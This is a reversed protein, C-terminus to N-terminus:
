DGIPNLKIEEPEGQADTLTATMQIANRSVLEVAVTIESARGDELIPLLARKGIGELVTGRGTDNRVQQTWFDSGYRNDPAYLWKTRPVKLRFYAPTQLGRDIVPRGNEVEYDKTTPDIKFSQGKM